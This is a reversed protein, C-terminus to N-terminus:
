LGTGDYLEDLTLAVGLALTLRDEGRHETLRWSGDDQRQQHIVIRAESDILLIEQVSPLQRYALSKADLDKSRTSPSLVEAVLAPNEIANPDHAATQRDGCVVSADPYFVQDLSAVFIRLDPSYARCPRGRLATRLEGTLNASILAHNPSGGTMATIRGADFEHKIGTDREIQLYEEYSVREHKAATM